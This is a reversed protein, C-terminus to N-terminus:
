VAAYVGSKYHSQIHRFCRMFSNSDFVEIGDRCAKWPHEDNDSTPAHHIQGVEKGKADLVLYSYFNLEQTTLM